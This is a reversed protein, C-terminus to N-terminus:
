RHADVNIQPYIYAAGQFSGRRAFEERILRLVRNKDLCWAPALFEEPHPDGTLRHIVVLPPLLELFDVV